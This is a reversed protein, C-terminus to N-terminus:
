LRRPPMLLHPALHPEDIVETGTGLRKPMPGLSTGAERTDFRTERQATEPRLSGAILLREHTSATSASAGEADHHAAKLALM